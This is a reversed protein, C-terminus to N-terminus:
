SITVPFALTLEVGWVWAFIVLIPAVFVSIQLSSGLSVGIALDMQNRMAAFVATTHEAANGVIPLVILGIFSSSLNYDEALGEISSVLYEASIAILITTVVLSGIAVPASLLVESEEESDESSEFIKTHTHLQFILFAVYVCLLALALGRSFMLVKADIKLHDTISGELSYKLTNPLIFMVLSLGLM